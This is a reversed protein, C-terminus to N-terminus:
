ANAPERRLAFREWYAAEARAADYGEQWDYERFTGAKHPNEHRDQYYAFHGCRFDHNAKPHM